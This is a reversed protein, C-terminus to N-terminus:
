NGAPTTSALKVRVSAAEPLPLRSRLNNQQSGLLVEARERSPALLVHIIFERASGEGNGLEVESEFTTGGWRLVPVPQAYYQKSIPSEYGPEVFLFPYGAGACRVKVICFRGVTEGQSPSEVTVVPDAPKGPFEAREEPRDGPRRATGFGIGGLVLGTAAFCSVLLRRRSWGGDRGVSPVMSPPALPPAVSAGCLVGLVEGIDPRRGAKKHSCRSALQRLVPAAEGTARDLARLLRGLAFVDEAPDALRDDRYCGERDFLDPAMFENRPLALPSMEGRRCAVDLCGLVADFGGALQDLSFLDGTRNALRIFVNAPQIDRAVLGSDHVAKLGEGLQRAIQEAFARSLCKKAGSRRLVAELSVDAGDLLLGFPPWGEQQFDRLDLRGLVRQVRPHEIRSWNWDPGWHQLPQFEPNDWLLVLLVGPRDAARAWWLQFRGSRSFLSLLTVGKYAGPLPGPRPPRNTLNEPGSM